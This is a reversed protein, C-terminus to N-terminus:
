KSESKKRKAQDEYIKMAAMEIRLQEIKGTDWIPLNAVAAHRIQKDSEPMSSADVLELYEEVLEKLAPDTACRSELHQAISESHRYYAM